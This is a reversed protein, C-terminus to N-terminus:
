RPPPLPTTTRATIRWGAITRQFGQTTDLIREIHWRGDHARRHLVLMAKLELEDHGTRNVIDNGILHATHRDTEAERATLFAAIEGHGRLQGDDTAFSADPTFLDLAESARGHDIATLFDVLLARCAAADAYESPGAGTM